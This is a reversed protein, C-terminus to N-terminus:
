RENTEASLRCSWVARNHKAQIWRSGAVRFTALGGPRPDVLETSELLKPRCRRYTRCAIHWQCHLKTISQAIDTIKIEKNRIQNRFTVGLM